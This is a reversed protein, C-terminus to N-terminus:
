GDGPCQRHNSTYRIKEGNFSEFLQRHAARSFGDQRSDYHRIWDLLMPLNADQDAKSPYKHPEWPRTRANAICAEIPLDLFRLQTASAAVMALLDSYCGEIVWGGRSNAHAAIFADIDRRSDALPRRQPPRTPLWAITDLDLHALDGDECLSKALTSKGSGSNGFILIRKM